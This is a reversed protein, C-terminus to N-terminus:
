MNMALDDKVVVCAEIRMSAIVGCGLREAKRQGGTSRGAHLTYVGSSARVGSIIIETWRM